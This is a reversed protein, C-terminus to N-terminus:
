PNTPPVNFRPEQPCPQLHSVGQRRPNVSGPRRSPLFVSFYPSPLFKTIQNFRKWNIPISHPHYLDAAQLDPFLDGAKDVVLHLGLKASAHLRMEFNASVARRDEVTCPIDNLQHSVTHFVPHGFPEAPPQVILNSVLLRLAGAAACRASLRAFVRRPEGCDLSKPRLGGVSAPVSRSPFTPTILSSASEGLGM